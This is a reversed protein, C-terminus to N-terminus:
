MMSFKQSIRTKRCIYKTDLIRASFAAISAALSFLMLKMLMMGGTTTPGNMMGVKGGLRIVASEGM